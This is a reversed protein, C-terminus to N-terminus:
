GVCVVIHIHNTRVSVAHLRWMRITCTERISREVSARRKADLLVPEGKLMARNHKYRRENPPAFRAKYRHHFRDVAGREDGHLWTGYCRFTILHAQPIHDEHFERHGM